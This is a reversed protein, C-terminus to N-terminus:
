QLRTPKSTGDEANRLRSYALYFHLAAVAALLLAWPSSHGSGYLFSMVALLLIGVGIRIGAVQRPHTAWFENHNQRPIVSQRANM